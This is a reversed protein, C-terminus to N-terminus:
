NLKMKKCPEYYDNNDNLDFLNSTETPHSKIQTNFEPRNIKLNSCRHEKFYDAGFEEYEAKTIFFSENAPDEM